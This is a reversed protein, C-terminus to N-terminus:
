QPYPRRCQVCRSQLLTEANRAGRNHIEPKIPPSFTKNRDAVFVTLLRTPEMLRANLGLSPEHSKGNAFALFKRVVTDAPIAVLQNGVLKALPTHAQLRFTRKPDFAAM